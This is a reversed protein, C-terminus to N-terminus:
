PWRRWIRGEHAPSFAGPHLIEALIEPTDFLLPGSRNFYLNGDAVFVRGDRVARLDRWGAHAVLAPMEALARELGFGCPAVVIIDPDADALAQWPVSTSHVGATGLACRGGAIDILEPGWNGMAFLPATWELCAVTPHPLPATAAALEALRERIGDVLARGADPAGVVAAVKHFGDLIGAITGTELAVVQQRELRAPGGHALDSDSVACVECHTQTIIVDPALTALLAEDVEYLPEGARLKARVRADIDDSAGTIDFTPRSVAPLRQVWEPFDCEHSRAVLKDGLGLACVLETGSALLSAIRQPPTPILDAFAFGDRTVIEGTRMAVPHAFMPGDYAFTHFEGNEGCPDVSPPLEALLAADYDRGVFRADLKRPDVCTLRARLGAALMRVSLTDTPIGWIPFVPEIGSGRLNDERYRRVDELFLDGFAMVTIGAARARGVAAAMAAEYEGNSCPSPIEVPWLPLGAAAAQARLLESRVAHMAVRDVAANITTLLGVVEVEGSQRLVHLAWASDKGSSWALLAKPKTSM